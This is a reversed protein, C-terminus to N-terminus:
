ICLWRATGKGAVVVHGTFAGWKDTHLGSVAGHKKLLTFPAHPSMPADEGVLATIVCGMSTMTDTAPKGEWWEERSGRKRKAGTFGRGKSQRQNRGGRLGRVVANALVGAPTCSSHARVGIFHKMKGAAHRTGHSIGHERHWATPLSPAITSTCQASSPSAQKVSCSYQSTLGRCRFVYKGGHELGSATMKFSKGAQKLMQAMGSSHSADALGEQPGRPPPPILSGAGVAERAAM